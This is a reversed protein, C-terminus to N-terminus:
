RYSLLLVFAGNKAFRVWNSGLLLADFIPGPSMYCLHFGYL